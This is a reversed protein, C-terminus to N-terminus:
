QAAPKKRYLSALILVAAVQALQICNLAHLMMEADGTVLLAEYTLIDALSMFYAGMSLDGSTKRKVLRVIQPLYSLNLVAQVAAIAYYLASM